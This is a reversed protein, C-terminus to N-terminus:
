IELIWILFKSSLEINYTTLPPNSEINLPSM